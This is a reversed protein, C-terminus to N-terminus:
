RSLYIPRHHKSTALLPFLFKKLSVNSYHCWTDKSVSRIGLTILSYCPKTLLSLWWLPLFVLYLKSTPLLFRAGDLAQCFCHSLFKGCFCCYLENYLRHFFEPFLLCSLKSRWKCFQNRTCFKIKICFSVYMVWFSYKSDNTYSHRERATKVSDHLSSKSQWM